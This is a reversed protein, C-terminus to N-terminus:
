ELEDVLSLDEVPTVDDTPNLLDLVSMDLIDELILSPDDELLEEILALKGPSVGLAIARDRLDASGAQISVIGGLNYGGLAVQLARMHNVGSSDDSGIVTVLVALANDIDKLYGSDSAAQILESIVEGVNGKLNLGRLLEEGEPNLGKVETIQGFCNFKCEISPNIDLYISLVPTNYLWAFGSFVIILVLCYAILTNRRRSAATVSPVDIEDGVSFSQHGKVFRFVGSKDLVHCGDDTRSLIVAKM